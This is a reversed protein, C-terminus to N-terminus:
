SHLQMWALGQKFSNPICHQFHGHHGPHSIFDVRTGRLLCSTTLWSQDMNGRMQIILAAYPANMAVEAAASTFRAACLINLLKWNVPAGCEGSLPPIPVPKKTEPVLWFTAMGGSFSLFACWLFQSYSTYGSLQIIAAAACGGLMSIGVWASLRSMVERRHTPPVIDFMATTALNMPSGTLGAVCRYITFNLMSTASSMLVYCSTLWIASTLMAIRRGGFDAFKGILPSGLILAINYGMFLVSLEQPNADLTKITHAPVLSILTAQAAFQLVIALTVGRITRETKESEHKSDSGLKLSAGILESAYSSDLM